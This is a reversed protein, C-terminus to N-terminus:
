SYGGPSLLVRVQLYAETEEERGNTTVSVQFILVDDLKIAGQLLLTEFNMASKFEEVQVPDVNEKQVWLPDYDEITGVPAPNTTQTQSSSPGAAPSFGSDLTMNSSPNQDYHSFQPRPAENPTATAMPTFLDGTEDGGYTEHHRSFHASHTMPQHTALHRDQPQGRILPEHRQSSPGSNSLPQNLIRMPLHPNQSQEMIFPEHHRNSSGSYSLPQNNLRPDLHPNQHQGWTFPQHHPNPPEPYSTPQQYSPVALQQAPGRATLDLYQHLLGEAQNHPIALRDRIYRTYDVLWDITRQNPLRNQEM